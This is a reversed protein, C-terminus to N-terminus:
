GVLLYCDPAWDQIVVKKGTAPDTQLVTFAMTALEYQNERGVNAVMPVFAPKGAYASLTGSMMSKEPKISCGHGHRQYKKLLLALGGELAWLVGDELSDAKKFEVAAAIHDIMDNMMMSCWGNKDVPFVNYGFAACLRRTAENCHTVLEGNVIAPKLESADMVAGQFSILKALDLPM